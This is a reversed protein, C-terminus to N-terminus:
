TNRFHEGQNESEIGGWGAQSREAGGREMIARGRQFIDEQSSHEIRSGNIIWSIKEIKQPVVKSKLKEKNGFLAGMKHVIKGWTSQTM